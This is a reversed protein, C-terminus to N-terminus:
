LAGGEYDGEVREFLLEFPLGLTDLLAAVTAANPPQGRVVRYLTTKPIGAALAVARATPRIGLEVARLKWATAQLRYYAM